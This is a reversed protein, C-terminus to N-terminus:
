PNSVPLMSPSVQDDPNSEQKEPDGNEAYHNYHEEEDV